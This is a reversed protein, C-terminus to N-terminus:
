HTKEKPLCLIDYQPDAWLIRPDTISFEYNLENLIDFVDESYYGARDLAEHNIEILMVPRCLKITEKAGELIKVEYGEADIKLFNLKQIVYSDLTNTDVNGADDTIYSAGVNEGVVLSASHKSNSLADSITIVQQLHEINHVLCEYAEPNPEFAIVIGTGGVWRAYTVTHDGISAGVDIVVGGSPVYQQFPKLMEEAIALTGHQEVWRSIHTDNELVAVGNNLVKM